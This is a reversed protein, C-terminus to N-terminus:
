EMMNLVELYVSYLIESRFAGCHFRVARTYRCFFARYWM